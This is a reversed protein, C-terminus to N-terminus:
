FPVVIPPIQLDFNLATQTEVFTVEGNYNIKLLVENGTMSTGAKVFTAQNPRYQVPLTFLVSPMASLAFHYPAFIVNGEKTKKYYLPNVSNTPTLTHWCGILCKPLAADIKVKQYVDERPNSQQPVSFNDDIFYNRTSGTAGGNAVYIDDTNVAVFRNGTIVNEDGCKIYIGYNLHTGGGFNNNQIICHKVARTDGRLYVMASPNNSSDSTGNYEIQNNCIWTQDGSDILISYGANVITNNIIANNLEGYSPTNLYIGTSNAGYFMNKEFINADGCEAYIGNGAFTCLQVKTHSFLEGVKLCWGSAAYFSCESILCTIFSYEGDIEVANGTGYNRVGIKAIRYGRIEATPAFKIVPDDNITANIFGKNGRINIGASIILTSTVKYANSPFFLELKNTQAYNIANQIPTTDDATNDGKAGFMEPTVYDKISKLKLADSFKSEELSGDQVMVEPHDDLWENVTSNIINEDITVEPHQQIYEGVAAVTQEDTPNGADGKLMLVKFLIDKM